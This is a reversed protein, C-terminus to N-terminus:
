KTTPKLQNPITKDSLMIKSIESTFFDADEGSLHSWEPCDLDKLQEYDQFHYGKAGSQKVLEDWFEDRCYFNAEHRIYYETSPCRLLILNGGRKQFIKADEVFLKIVGDKDIHRPPTTDSSKFIWVNKILRAFSTDTVTKETMRLNRDITMDEFKPFPPFPTFDNVLREGFQINQLLPKLKIADIGEADSIFALNQQLPIALSHNIRQAYTQDDFYEVKDNASRYARDKTSTSSFFLGPTVGVIITGTFDTNNILDHFIPLPSAGPHALQIPKIGTEKEWVNLQIDFHIRSSGMLVIDTDTAKKIRNRQVAFLADDNDIDPYYGNSRWFVEWAITGLVCLTVGIILSQKLNM